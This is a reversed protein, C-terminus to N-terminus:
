ALDIVGCFDTNVLNNTIFILIKINRFMYREYEKKTIEKQQRTQRHTHIRALKDPRWWAMSGNKNIYITRSENM